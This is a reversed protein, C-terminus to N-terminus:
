ILTCTDDTGNGYEVVRIPKREKLEEVQRRLGRFNEDMQKRSEKAERLENQLEREQKKKLLQMEQLKIEATKEQIIAEEKSRRYTEELEKMEKEAIERKFVEEALRKAEGVRREEVEKVEKQRREEIEELQRKLEKLNEDVQKRNEKAERLENQMEREQKAHQLVQHLHKEFFEKNKDITTKMQALVNGKEPGRSEESYKELLTEVDAALQEPTYEVESATQVKKEIPAYLESFLQECFERSRRRNEEIFPFLAGGVVLKCSDTGTGDTQILQKELQDTVTELTCEETVELALLPRVEDHLKEKVESWLTDHIEMLSKEDGVEELLGGKSIKAYREKMTKTYEVLLSEQVAKCRSKVVMKWTNDLDPISDPSNAAETIEKVFLAFTPGDCQTGTEDFLQKAKINQKVFAVLEDVGQNFLSDLLKLSASVNAMVNIDTSPTPLTRCEFSPFCQTLSKRVAVKVSDPDDGSLVEIQLFKTPTSYREPIRVLFDRLLWLFPPFCKYRSDSQDM